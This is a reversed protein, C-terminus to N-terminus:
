KHQVNNIKLKHLSITLTIMNIEHIFNMIKMNIKVCYMSVEGIQSYFMKILKIVITKSIRGLKLMKVTPTYLKVCKVIRLDTQFMTSMYTSLLFWM